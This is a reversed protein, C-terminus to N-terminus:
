DDGKVGCMADLRSRLHATQEVIVTMLADVREAAPSRGLEIELCLDLLVELTGLTPSLENHVTDTDISLNTSM